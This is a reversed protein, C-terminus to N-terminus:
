FICFPGSRDVGGGCGAQGELGAAFPEWRGSVQPAVAGVSKPRIGRERTRNVWYKELGSTPARPCRALLDILQSFAAKRLHSLPAAPLRNSSRLRNRCEAQITAYHGREIGSSPAGSGM